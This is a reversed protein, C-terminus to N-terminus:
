IGEDPTKYSLGQHFREQNYLKFWSTLGKKLEPVSNFEKIYINLAEGCGKLSSITKSVGRVMWASESVM